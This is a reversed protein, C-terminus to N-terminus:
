RMLNYRKSGPRLWLDLDTLPLPEPMYLMSMVFSKALLSTLWQLDRDFSYQLEGLDPLMRRFVSLASAPQKYLRGLVSQQLKELYEFSALSSGSM